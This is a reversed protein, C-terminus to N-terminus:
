KYKKNERLTPVVAAFFDRYSFLSKLLMKTVLIKPEETVFITKRVFIKATPEQRNFKTLFEIPLFGRVGLAHWIVTVKRFIMEFRYDYIRKFPCDIEMYDDKLSLQYIMEFLFNYTMDFPCNYIMDFPYDAPCLEGVTM